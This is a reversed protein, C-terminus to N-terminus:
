TSRKYKFIAWPFWLVSETEEDLENCYDSYRDAEELSAILGHRNPEYNFQQYLDNELGNCLYSHFSGSDFGLVEYGLTNAGELESSLHRLLMQEVGYPKPNKSSYLAVDELFDDVYQEPLGISIIQIDNHHNLFLNLFEQAAYLSSFVQPFLLDGTHFANEIWKEFLQFSNLPPIEFQNRYQEKRIESTGWLISIDPFQKCICNSASLVTKPILYPNMYETRSSPMILFYGASIYKM